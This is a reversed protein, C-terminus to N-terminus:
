GNQLIEIIKQPIENINLEYDYYGAEKIIKQMGYILSSNKDQIIIPLNKSKALKCGALGDEKASLGSLICIIPKLNVEIASIITKSISPSFNGLSNDEKVKIRLNNVFETQYGGKTVYIFNSQLEINDEAVKVTLNSKNNLVEVFSNEFSVPLHQVILIPINYNKDFKDIISYLAKPGGTSSGIILLDYKM